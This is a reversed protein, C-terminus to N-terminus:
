SVKAISRRSLPTSVGVIAKRRPCVNRPLENDKRWQVFSGRSSTM